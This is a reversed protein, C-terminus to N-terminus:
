DDCADDEYGRLGMDDDPRVSIDGQSDLCLALPVFLDDLADPMAVVVSFVLKRGDAEDFRLGALIGRTVFPEKICAAFSRKTFTKDAFVSGDARRVTLRYSNDVYKQGSDDCVTVSDLPVRGVTVSYPKGMWTVDETLSEAAMAIPPQPRQVEYRTAIIDGQVPKKEKCGGLTLAVAAVLPITTNRKM